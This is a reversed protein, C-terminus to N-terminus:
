FSTKWFAQLFSGRTSDGYDCPLKLRRGAQGGGSDAKWVGFRRGFISVVWVARGDVRFATQFPSPHRSLLNADPVFLPCSVTELVKDQDRVAVSCVPGFEEGFKSKFFAVDLPISANNDSCIQM